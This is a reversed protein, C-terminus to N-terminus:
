CCFELPSWVIRHTGCRHLSPFRATDCVRVAEPVPILGCIRSLLRYEYGRVTGHTPVEYSHLTVNFAQEMQSPLGTVKLTSTTTQQVALGYKELASIVRAVEADEPAFRARFQNATLFHHFEADGPTLLAVLLNEAEDVNRLRLALTVSLPTRPSQEALAGRDFAATTAGRDPLRFPVPNGIAPNQAMSVALPVFLLLLVSEFKSTRM